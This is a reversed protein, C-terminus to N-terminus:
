RDYCPLKKINQFLNKSIKKKSYLERSFKLVSACLSEHNSINKDKKIKWIELDEKNMDGFDNKIPLCISVKDDNFYNMLKLFSKVCSVKGSNFDKNFDNNFALIIHDVDLGMLTSILSPSVDLGFTVLVNKVNNEFLFLMDGISEVLIVERSSNIASLTPSVGEQDLCYLPYSWTTKKGMHKWKPRKESDMMDRGALGHIKQFKNFIPFVYRQYMSGETSMGSKLFKLTENSVGKKNYFSYHPLLDEVENLSFTKEVSIKSEPEEAPKSSQFDKSLIDKFNKLNDKGVTKEILAPFPLFGEGVVYDKWVGSDKYIQLATPNDGNRYVASCQWYEGRDSLNYGLSILTDKIDLNNM